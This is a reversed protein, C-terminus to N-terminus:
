VRSQLWESLAALVDDKEYDHLMDHLGEPFTKICKDKSAVKDLMARAPGVPCVQDAEGHLVLIPAALSGSREAIRDFGDLMACATSVSIRVRMLRTDEERKKLQLVLCLDRHAAIPQQPRVLSLM